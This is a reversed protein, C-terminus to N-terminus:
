AVGALSLLLALVVWERRSVSWRSLHAIGLVMLATYLVQGFVINTTGAARWDPPGSQEVLSALAIFVQVLHALGIECTFRQGRHHRWVLLLAMGIILSVASNVLLAYLLTPSIDPTM